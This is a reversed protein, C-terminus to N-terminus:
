LHMNRDRVNETSSTPLIRDGPELGSLVIAVKDDVKGFQVNVRRASKGDESVVYVPRVEGDHAGAPATIFIADDFHGLSFTADFAQDSRLWSPQRGSVAALVYILDKEGENPIHTVVGSFQGNSNRFKVTQGVGVKGIDATTVGIQLIQAQTALTAVAQGAAVSEGVKVNVKSVVSEKPAMILLSGLAEKAANLDIRAMDLLRAQNRIQEEVTNSFNRLRSHAFKREAVAVDRASKSSALEVKSIIASEALKEEAQYKEEAGRLASDSREVELELSGRKDAADFKFARFATEAAIFDKEASRFAMQAAPSELRVLVAGPQVLSGERFGVGTVTGSVAAAMVVEGLPVTQAQANLTLDVPGRRVTEFATAGGSHCRAVVLAAVLATAIVLIGTNRGRFGRTRHIMEDMM